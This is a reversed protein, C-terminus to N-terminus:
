FAELQQLRRKGGRRTRKRNGDQIEWQSARKGGYSMVHGQWATEQVQQMGSNASVDCQQVNNWTNATMTAQQQGSQMASPYTERYPQQNGSQMTAPICDGYQQQQQGNQMATPYSQGYQQHNGSQMTGPSCDGYQQQQQRNQATTPYSERYPQQHESQMTAPLSEGYQQQQQRNHMAPPYSQGYPQQHGSRMTAPLSEGCLQRGSQSTAQHCERYPQQQGNHMGTPLPEGYRQQHGGQMPTLHSETYPQQCGNQMSAPHSDGYQQHGHQMTAPFSETYPQQYGSQIIASPSERYPPDYRRVAEANPHRTTKDVGLASVPHHQQVESVATPHVAHKRQLKVQRLRCAALTQKRISEQVVRDADPPLANSPIAPVEPRAPEVHERPRDVRRAHLRPATSALTHQKANGALQTDVGGQVSLSNSASSRHPNCEAATERVRQPSRSLLPTPQQESAHERKVTRSQVPQDVRRHAVPRPRICAKTLPVPLSAVIGRRIGNSSDPQAVRSDKVKLSAKPCVIQAGKACVKRPVKPAVKPTPQAACGKTCKPVRPVKQTPQAARPRRPIDPMPICHVSPHPLRRTLWIDRDHVVTFYEGYYNQVIDRLTPYVDTRMGIYSRLAMIDPNKELTSILAWPKENACSRRSGDKYMERVVMRLFSELLEDHLLNAEEQAREDPDSPPEELIHSCCKGHCAVRRARYKAPNSISLDGEFRSFNNLHEERRRKIRREELADCEDELEDDGSSEEKVETDQRWPDHTSAKSTGVSAKTANLMKAIVKEERARREARKVRKTAVSLSGDTLEDASYDSDEGEIRVSGFSSSYSASMSSMSASCFSGLDASPSAEALFDEQDAVSTGKCNSELHKAGAATVTHTEPCVLGNEYGLESAIKAMGDSGGPIISFYESDAFFTRPLRDYSREHAPVLEKYLDQVVPHSEVRHLYTLGDDQAIVQAAWDSLQKVLHDASSM